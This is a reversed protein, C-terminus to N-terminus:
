RSDSCTSQSESLISACVVKRRRRRMYALVVFAAVLVALVGLVIAELPVKATPVPPNTTIQMLPYRDQNLVDIRYYTDGV